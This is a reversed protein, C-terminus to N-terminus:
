NTTEKRPAFVWYRYIFYNWVTTAVVAAIKGVIWPAGLADVLWVIATTALTNFLVLITYRVISPAVGSDGGFAFTRQLTYTVAFSLLFAAATSLALDLGFGDHLLWLVGADFLFALGGMTLYRVPGLAWLREIFNTSTSSASSVQRDHWTSIPEVRLPSDTASQGRRNHQPVNHM